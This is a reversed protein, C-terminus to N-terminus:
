KNPHKKKWCKRKSGGELMFSLTIFLKSQISKSNSPITDLFRYSKLLWVILQLRKVKLLKIQLPRVM